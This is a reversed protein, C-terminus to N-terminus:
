AGIRKTRSALVARIRAALLGPRALDAWSIRICTWGTLLCVLEEREKERMLFEELSEGDRRHERYKTRGDFELFVGFDPWAFDLRAVLRGREDNVQWQPEPRPLGAAYALYSFRDEGVSELRPDALRLVLDSTLSGPWRQHQAVQDALEHLTMAGVHLMRNVVVLAPEVPAITTVEFAARAPVTVLMGNVLEVDDDTLRGRHPVWDPSVRGAREPQERTTHVVRLDLGWVPIGREVVSSVHTAVTEEHARALVARCRVRHRDPASLAAWAKGDVYTGHRIRCVVGARVLRRLQQDTMGSAILDRRLRVVGDLDPHETM